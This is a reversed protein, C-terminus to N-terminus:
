CSCFRSPNKVSVEQGTAIDIATYVTGSARSVFCCSFSLFVKGQFHFGAWVPSSQQRSHKYPNVWEEALLM